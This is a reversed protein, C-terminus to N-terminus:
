FAATIPLRYGQEFGGFDLLRDLLRQVCQQGDEPELGTAFVSFGQEFSGWGPL